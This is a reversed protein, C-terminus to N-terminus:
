WVRFPEEVVYERDSSMLGLVQVHDHYKDM